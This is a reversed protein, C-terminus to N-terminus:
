STLAASNPVGSSSTSQDKTGSTSATQSIPTHSREGAPRASAKPSGPSIAPMRSANGAHLEVPSACARAEAGARQQLDPDMDMGVILQPSFRKALEAFSHGFGCGVDLVKKGTLPQLREVNVELRKQVVGRWYDDVFKQFLSKKEGYISDFREADEHFHDRVKEEVTTQVEAKM